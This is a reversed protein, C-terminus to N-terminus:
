IRDGSEDYNMWVSETKREKKKKSSANNPLEFDVQRWGHNRAVDDYLDNQYGSLVFRGQMGVLTDLLEEHDKESMEHSGYEGTSTRTSHLYPPDCYVLLRKSDLDQIAKVAPRSWVEVRKLREYVEALGEVATLWASVQENMGRRTRSTPTCYDKGLGQRSMRCRIFFWAARRVADISFPPREPAFVVEVKKMKSVANDFHKESLPVAEVMRQFKAFLTTHQMVYWFQMLDDDTDNIWESVGNCQRHFLVSLGGAFAELYRDDKEPQPMLEVIKKALYHKGGHRKIPQILRKTTTM